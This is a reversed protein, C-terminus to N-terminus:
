DNFENNKNARYEEDMQKIIEWDEIDSYRLAIMFSVFAFIFYAVVGIACTVVFLRRVNILVVVMTAVAFGFALILCILGLYRFLTSKPLKPSFLM